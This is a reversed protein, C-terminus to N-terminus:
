PLKLTQGIMIRDSSLQNYDRLQQVTVKNARAIKELTDGSQVKYTRGAETAKAAIEQAAVEKAQLVDMMSHLAAELSSMHKNQADILQELDSIKQKYQGLVTVSDNAQTKMQRLDAILGKVTTDLADIKGELAAAKGEQNISAARTYDKHSQLDDAMQQRIQDFAIEQNHLREEFMRIESEHNNMEHKLDAVATKFQRILPTIDVEEMQVAASRPQSNSRNSSTPIAGFGLFPFALLMGMLYMKANM